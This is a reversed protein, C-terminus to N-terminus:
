AARRAGAAGDGGPPRRAARMRAPTLYHGACGAVSFVLPLHQVRAPTVLYRATTMRGLARPQPLSGDATVWFVAAGHALRVPAPAGSDAEVLALRAHLAPWASLNRDVEAPRRDGPLLLGCGGARALHVCLSAAARVVRDLAEPAAPRRPDLIVLPRSDDDAVLRRELMEGTRAVSPWHIRSAPSGPRYPRLTDVDLEAAPGAVRGAGAGDAGAGLGGPGLGGGGPLTLVPEIRPLVLLQEGGPGPVERVALRLPDRIVLTSPELIRRGRREFRVNIRVRRSWRGAIPVPWGLLPELLEGGPPPLVGSRVEIRLPYPDEEQITSPGPERVVAAGRAALRVWAAACVGIVALGLGPVYLSVSDFAAASLVLAVGLTATGLARSV